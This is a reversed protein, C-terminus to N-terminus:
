QAKRVPPIQKPLAVDKTMEMDGEDLPCSLDVNEITTCLDAQQNVITVLGWKVQLHIKAGDEVPEKLTGTANITLTSGSCCWILRATGYVYLQRLLPM